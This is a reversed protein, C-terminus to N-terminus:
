NGEGRDVKPPAADVPLHKLGQIHLGILETGRLTPAGASVGVLTPLGDADLQAQWKRGLADTLSFPYAHTVALTKLIVRYVSDYSNIAM